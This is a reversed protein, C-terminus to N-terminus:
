GRLSGSPLGPIDSTEGRDQIEFSDNSEMKSDGERTKRGLGTVRETKKKKGAQQGM